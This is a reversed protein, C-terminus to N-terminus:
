GSTSSSSKPANGCITAVMYGSRCTTLKPWKTKYDNTIATSLASERQASIDAKITTKAQALTQTKSPTIADVTFVYYGFPTKVPGSLTGTTAAFVAASLQSTLQGNNRVGLMVGGGSKTQPDISYKPALTAYSGGQLLLNKVKNAAALTSTEILHLNRTEPTVFQSHNKNYYAAIEADTVKGAKSQLQLLLGNELLNVRTRWMLDQVTQGSKALFADLAKASTLPPKSVKRQHQFSAQVQADTVKVGRDAAEGEIWIAEILYTMVEQVLSNYQQACTAKLVTTTSGATTPQKKNYAVCATYDPPVPLPPAPTGTAAQNADNAVVLWHNIAALTIPASGIQAVANGPIGGGCAGIVVATAIAACFAMGIRM